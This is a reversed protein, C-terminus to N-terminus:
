KPIQQAEEKRRRGGPRTGGPATGPSQGEVRPEPGECPAVNESLRRTKRNTGNTVRQRRGGRADELGDRIDSRPNGPGREGGGEWRKECRGRM